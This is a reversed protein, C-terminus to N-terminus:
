RRFRDCLKPGAQVRYVIGGGLRAIGERPIGGVLQKDLHERGVVPLLDIQQAPRREAQPGGKMRRELLAPDRRLLDRTLLASLGFFLFLYVWAQWYRLTGASGFLLAGMIVGLVVLSLWARNALSAVSSM